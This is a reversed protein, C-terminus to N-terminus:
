EAVRLKEVISGKNFMKLAIVPVIAAVIILLVSVLLAPVLTFQFTFYWMSGLLIKVMTYGLVVSLLLGIGCAGLAYYVSECIMMRTLQKDTMGLSQMTAFEHRRALITTIVTNLLNLVGAIGFIAGILGGVFHIMTRTTEASERAKEASAYNISPDVEKMYKKLFATMNLRESEEVDFSYKYVVPEEYLEQYVSTPFYLFLGDGGVLNTGNSTYGIEEDDGNLAAKALVPLKKVPQGDQYVTIIDGVDVFNADKGISMDKRDVGVGVLVGEGNLMKEYLTHPDHEGEQIDMRAISSEEMGYVNCMPRKDDGLSFWYYEETAAYTLGTREDVYPDKTPHIGFDYTVNTDEITNKYVASADKVGPQAKIEEMTEQSLAQTRMTFGKQGNTSVANVVAFDTRINYNVQKEVDLSLAAIGVCNLLTVCLMLSVIIFATRRKNRGLNSMALRPISAGTTSRKKTRKGAANEVYRFAEIPPISAAVRVPKRTSLFVTFAAFVASAIFIVPSPSVSVSINEYEVSLVNMVVPLAAKGVLYGVALGMPIGICSLWLAQRNILHRVQKKSMGVTRYLGYRKIEQMVAIDFVNYILLYGCFTFLVIFAAGTAITNKDLAPNTMGNIVGPVYNDANQDEPEGGVSRIWDYMKDNLGVISKATFDSFYTGAIERDQPYTFDFIEPHAETFAEGAVMVSTQDNYAPYWGSVVLPLSYQQEHVTFEVTVEAGVKPKAGLERIALDSAVIEDAAAPMKGHSPNCFTLEAQTEDMVDLEVNHRVTNTLFGVPMRLGYKEIFDADKLATFQEKTMNRLDGDSRSGKQMQMTLKMSDMAGMGTTTVTTFLITTLMIALVAILNRMRSAKFSRQALLNLMKTKIKNASM